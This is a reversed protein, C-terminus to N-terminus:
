PQDLGTDQKVPQERIPGGEPNLHSKSQPAVAFSAAIECAMKLSNCLEEVNDPRLSMEPVQISCVKQHFVEIVTRSENWPYILAFKERKDIIMNKLALSAM